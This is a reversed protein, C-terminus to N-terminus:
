GGRHERRGWSHGHLPRQRAASPPLRSARRKFVPKQGGMDGPCPPSTGRSGSGPNWPARRLIDGPREALGDPLHRGDLPLPREEPVAIFLPVASGRVHPPSRARLTGLAPAPGPAEQTVPAKLARTSGQGRPGTPRFSQHGLPSGKRWSIFIWAGQSRGRGSPSPPVRGCAMRGGSGERAGGRGARRLAGLPQQHLLRKIERGNPATPQSLIPPPTQGGGPARGKGASVPLVHGRAAGRTPSHSASSQAPRVPVGQGGPPHRAWTPRTVGLGAGGEDM